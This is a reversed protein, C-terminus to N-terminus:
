CHPMRSSRPPTEWDAKQRWPYIKSGAINIEYKTLSGSHLLTSQNYQSM